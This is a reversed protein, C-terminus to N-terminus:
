LGLSKSVSLRQDLDDDVYTDKAQVSKWRGHRQFVRDSVGNNATSTAGGSRLSHFGFSSPDVGVSRLDERFAERITTYSIPRDQSVLKFSNKGRSIPRFILDRSSSPISFHALYTKLLKVPCASGSIESFIVEDGKRLQDNKSKFVRIAMFGEHFFIDNRRIRSVDDFRFFGAFLLVYMTVNPLHVHNQLNALGIVDHIVSSSIPEKRNVVRTGLVRKSACRVAEVVPNDTPSPIGAMTHAWKIGYFASDVVSPSHSEDILHQLYLAVHCPSAPCACSHLKSSAFDKWKRFARHYVMTTSIAKSSLVTSQLSDTLGLIFGEPPLNQLGRWFGSRFIDSFHDFVCFSFIFLM